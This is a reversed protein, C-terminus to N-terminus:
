NTSSNLCSGGMSWLRSLSDSVLADGKLLIGVLCWHTEMNRPHNGEMNLTLDDGEELLSLGEM